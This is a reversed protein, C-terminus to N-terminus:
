RPPALSRLHELNARADANNPDALVARQLYMGARDFRGQDANLIGLTNLLRSDNPMWQLAQEFYTVADAPKGQAQNLAGLRLYAQPQAPNRALSEKYELAAGNMDNTALLAEALGLHTAWANPDLELARRYEPIADAPRNKQMWATALNHHAESYDPRLAIAREHREIAADLDNAAYLALGLNTQARASNPRKAVTDTWIARDSAYDRNRARTAVALPIALVIAVGAVLAVRRSSRALLLAVGAFVLTTLAALPLYFRHEAVVDLRIPVFSSSPALILFAAVVPFAWAKRRVTGWVALIAILALAVFFPLYESPKTLLTVGDGAMGYDFVLPSPWLALKVYHLIAWSQTTLYDLPALLESAQAAVKLRSTTLTLGILVLWTAALAAHLKGRKRLADRWGDAVLTADFVLAAIPLGACSEKTAMGCIASVVALWKWRSKPTAETAERLLAYLTLVFFLAAMSEIRQVVFTVSKTQLPHVLWVLAAAFAVADASDAFREAFRPLKMTRRVLGFLLLATALHVALNFAHYSAVELGGYAYNLAFSVNALPRGSIGIDAKGTYVLLDWPPWPRRLAGNEVISPIDDFLFPVAFTNAYAWIGAAILIWPAVRAIWANAPAARSRENTPM